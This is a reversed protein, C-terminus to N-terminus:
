TLMLNQPALARGWFGINVKFIINNPHPASSREGPGFGFMLMKIYYYYYHTPPPARARAAAAFRRRGGGVVVIVVIYEQHNPQHRRPQAEAM